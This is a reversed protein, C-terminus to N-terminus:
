YKYKWIVNLEEDLSSYIKNLEDLLNTNKVLDTSKIISVIDIFSLKGASLTIIASELDTNRIVDGNRIKRYYAYGDTTPMLTRVPKSYEKEDVELENFAKYCGIQM